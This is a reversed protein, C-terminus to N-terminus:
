VCVTQQALAREWDDGGKGVGWPGQFRDSDAVPTVPSAGGTDGAALRWSARDERETQKGQLGTLGCLCTLRMRLM